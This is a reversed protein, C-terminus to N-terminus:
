CPPVELAAVIGALKAAEVNAGFRLVRGDRLTLELEASPSVPAVHVPVFLDGAAAGDGKLRKKWQAFKWIPIRRRRCFQTQSLGSARWRNLIERWHGHRRQIAARSNSKAM